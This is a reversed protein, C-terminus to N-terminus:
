KILYEVVEKLSDNWHPITLNFTNKIKNKNLVSYAPRSAPLPYEKTLIPYVSCKRKGLKMIEVAFDYWSAVGENSFHYIGSKWSQDEETYTFITLIAKALDAANTPSGIQDFVVGLKEKEAGLRLMTKVFNNGFKSYLWSTRIIIADTQNLVNLEGQLKTKGYISEPKTKDEENYPLFHQGSFVYDTSIHILRYKIKKSLKALSKPVEANILAATKEDSEAKDVNTFAACNIIYTPRELTLISEVSQFDTLDIKDIDTFVFQWSKYKPALLQIESGLQGNAGTVLIKM